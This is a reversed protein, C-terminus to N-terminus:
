AKDQIEPLLEKVLKKSNQEVVHKVAPFQMVYTAVEQMLAPLLKKALRQAIKDAIIDLNEDSLQLPKSIEPSEAAAPEAQVTESPQPEAFMEDVDLAAEEEDMDIIEADEDLIESEVVMDAEESEDDFAYEEQVIPPEQIVEAEPVPAAEVPAAEPVTLFSKVKAVIDGSTAPKHLIADAGVADIGRDRDFDEFTGALLILPLHQFTPNKKLMKCIQYGDVEPMIADILAIDPRKEKVTDLVQSGSGVTIVDYGERTLVIEFHRQSAISDDVILVKPNM